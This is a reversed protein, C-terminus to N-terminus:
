QDDVYLTKFVFHDNLKKKKLMELDQTLNSDPHVVLM